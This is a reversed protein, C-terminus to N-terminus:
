SLHALPILGFWLLYTLALAMIDDIRACPAGRGLYGRIALALLLGHAAALFVAQGSLGGFLGLHQWALGCLAAALTFALAALAAGRRGLLVALTRKAVARDAEHDPLASLTIAALTAFCLPVGILWPFPDRWSGAQLLGGCLILALSHSLGVTLEGLGRYVLKLPPLTYSLAGLALAVLLWLTPRTGPPMLIALAGIALGLLLATGQMVRRVQRPGLSGELLVRSGGNFPGANRNLRDTGQDFWENGLVTLMETLFVCLYGLWYVPLSLAGGRRGAALAGITYAVWSMPYFQLRLLRLWAGAAERLRVARRRRALRRPESRAEGLWGKRAEASSPHLPGFTSIFTPGIGCFGLTARRMARHGPQGYLLRYAWAPTDMTVLLHATRGGLLKTWSATGEGMEFAFGPLLVRDLFGKLLAPMTGWWNPYVFVLHEAWRILDQARALDAELPQDQPSPCRVQPDFALAHLDLRELACGAERAGEEYADALAGCFSDGRPHGLILLVKPSQSDRAPNL